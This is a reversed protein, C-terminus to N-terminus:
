LRPITIMVVNDNQWGHLLMGIGWVALVVFGVSLVVNYWRRREFAFALFVFMLTVVIIYM